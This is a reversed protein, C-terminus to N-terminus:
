RSRLGAVGVVVVVVVVVAALVFEAIVNDRCCGCRRGTQKWIQRGLRDGRVIWDLSHEQTQIQFTQGGQWRLGQQLPTTMAAIQIAATAGTATAIM